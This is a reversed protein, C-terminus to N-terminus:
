EALFADVMALWEQTHFCVLEAHAMGKCVAIQAAPYYKKMLKATKKSLMENSKTGYLYLIKMGDTSLVTPFTNQCISHCINFISSDSMNDAIKLYDDLYKAPLMVKKFNELTKPDRQQSKHVIATYFNTIYNTLFNGNPVLPAGDLILHKIALRGNKWLLAAIGGGMSLGVVTDMAAGDHELLWDEIAAAEQQISVFESPADQTHGDLEPVIVYYRDSYHAAVEEWMQWPCLVGHILLMKPNSERGFTHFEM